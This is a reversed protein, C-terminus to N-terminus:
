RVLKLTPHLKLSTGTETVLLVFKEPAGKENLAKIVEFSIDNRLVLQGKEEKIDVLEIPGHKGRLIILKDIAETINM